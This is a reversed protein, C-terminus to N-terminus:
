ELTGPLIISGTNETKYFASECYPCVICLEVQGSHLLNCISLYALYVTKTSFHGLPTKILRATLRIRSHTLDM